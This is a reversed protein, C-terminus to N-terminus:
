PFSVNHLCVSLYLVPYTWECACDFFWDALKQRRQDRSFTVDTYAITIEEGAEIHRLSRIRINAGELIYTANPDCSHNIVGALPDVTIGVEEGEMRDDVM